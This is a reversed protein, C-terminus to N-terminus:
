RSPLSAPSVRGRFAEFPNMTQEYLNRYKGLDDNVNGAKQSRVLPAGAPTFSSSGATTATEDRYSQM